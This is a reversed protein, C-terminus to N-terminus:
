GEDVNLIEPAEHTETCGRTGLACTPADEPPDLLTRCTSGHEWTKRRRPKKTTTGPTGKPHQCDYCTGDDRRGNAHECDVMEGTAIWAFVQEVARVMQRKQEDSTERGNLYDVFDQAFAYLAPGSQVLRMNAETKGGSNEARIKGGDPLNVSRGSSAVGWKGQTFPLPDNPDVPKMVGSAIPGRTDLRKEAERAREAWESRVEATCQHVRRERELRYELEAIAAAAVHDAAAEALVLGIVDREDEHLPAGAWAAMRRARERIAKFPPIVIGDPDPPKDLPPFARECYIRV